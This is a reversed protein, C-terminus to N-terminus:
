YTETITTEIITTAIFILIIHFLSLLFRLYITCAWIFSIFNLSLISKLLFNLIYNFIFIIERNRNSPFFNRFKINNCYIFNTFPFADGKQVKVVSLVFNQGIIVLNFTIENIAKIPKLTNWTYFRSMKTFILARISGALYFTFWKNFSFIIWFWRIPM